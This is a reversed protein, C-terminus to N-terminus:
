SSGHEPPTMPIYIAACEPDIGLHRVMSRVHGAEVTVRDRRGHPGLPVARYTKGKWRVWWRHLKAERTFGEACHALMEWVDDLPVLRGVGTM